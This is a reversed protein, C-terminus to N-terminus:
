RDAFKSRSGRRDAGKRKAEPVAPGGRSDGNKEERQDDFFQPAYKTSHTDPSVGSGKEVFYEPCYAALAREVLATKGLSLAKSAADLQDLWQRSARMHFGLAKERQM